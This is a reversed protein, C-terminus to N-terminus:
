NFFTMSRVVPLNKCYGRARAHKVIDVLFIVNASFLQFLRHQVPLQILVSTMKVTLPLSLHCTDIVM